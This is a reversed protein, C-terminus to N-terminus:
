AARLWDQSLGGLEAADAPKRVLVVSNLALALAAAQVLGTCRRYRNARPIRLGVLSSILAAHAHELVDRRLKSIDLRPLIKAVTPALESPVVIAAQFHRLIAHGDAQRVFRVGVQRGRVHRAECLAELHTGDIALRFSRVSELAADLELLAGGESLDRLTCAM